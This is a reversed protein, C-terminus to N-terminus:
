THFIAGSVQFFAVGEGVVCVAVGAVGALGWIGKGDVEVRRNYIMPALTSSFSSMIPLLLLLTPYASFYNYIVKNSLYGLNPASMLMMLWVNGSSRTSPLALFPLLLLPPLYPSILSSLLLVQLYLLPKLSPSPTNKLDSRKCDLGDHGPRTQILGVEANFASDSVNDSLKGVGGEQRHFVTELLDEEEEEEEERNNNDNKCWVLVACMGIPVVCSVCINFLYTKDVKNHNLVTCLLLSLLSGLFSGRLRYLSTATTLKSIAALHPSGASPERDLLYPANKEDSEDDGRSSPSAAGSNVLLNTLVIEVILKTMILYDLVAVMLEYLLCSATFLPLSSIAIEPTSANTSNGVSTHNGHFDESPLASHVNLYICCIGLGGVSLVVGLVWKLGGGLLRVAAISYLPKSLYPVYMLAYFLSLKEGSISDSGITVLSTVSLSLLSQVYGILVLVCVYPM